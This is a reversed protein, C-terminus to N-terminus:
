CAASSSSARTEALLWCVAAAIMVGGEGGLLRVPMRRRM